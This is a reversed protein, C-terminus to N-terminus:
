IKEPPRRGTIRDMLSRKPPRLSDTLRQVTARDLRRADATVIRTGPPNARPDDPVVADVAEILGLDRDAAYTALELLLGYVAIADYGSDHLRRVFRVDREVLLDRFRPVLSAPLYAGGMLGSSQDLRIPMTRAAAIPVGLETFLRSPPRLLMGVGRDISAEIMTLSVGEHVFSPQAAALVQALALSVANAGSERGANATALGAQAAGIRDRLWRTGDIAPVGVAPGTGPATLAEGFRTAVALDVPHISALQM